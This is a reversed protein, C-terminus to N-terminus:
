QAPGSGYPNQGQANPDQQGPQQDPYAQGPYAQGPYPQQAYPQPEPYAQGPYPQQPYPQPQGQYAQGYQQAFQQAYQKQAASVYQPGRYPTDGYSLISAFVVPIFVLGMTFAADKGFAKAIDNLIVIQMYINFYPIFLFWFHSEPRGAIKVLIWQNYFPVYAKWKAYGAKSFVGAWMIGAVVLALVIIFLYFFMLAAILGMAAAPDVSSSGYPAPNTAGLVAALSTALM